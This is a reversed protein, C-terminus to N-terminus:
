GYHRNLGLQCFFVWLAQLTQKWRVGLGGVQFRLREATNTMNPIDGISGDIEEGIGSAIHGALGENTLEELYLM